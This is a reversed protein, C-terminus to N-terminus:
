GRSKIKQKELLYQEKKTHAWLVTLPFCLDAIRGHIVHCAPCLLAGDTYHTHTHVQYSLLTDCWTKMLHFARKQVPDGGKIISENYQGVGQFSISLRVWNNYFRGM